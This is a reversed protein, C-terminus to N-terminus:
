RSYKKSFNVMYTILFYRKLILNDKNDTVSNNSAVQTLGINQNLVDFVSLKILGKQGEGCPVSLSSGVLNATRGSRVVAQGNLKYEYTIELTSKKAGRLILKSELSQTTFSISRYSSSLGSYSTKVVNLNYTPSFEVKDNVNVLIDQKLNGTLNNWWGKDQNIELFSKGYSGTLSTRSSLQLGNIKKFKKGFSAGYNLSRDIATNKVTQTILGATNSLRPKIIADTLVTGRFYLEYNIQASPIYNILNASFSQSKSPRLGTNGIRIYLPNVVITDPFIDGISPQNVSKSYSMSFKKGSLRLSPLIYFLSQHDVTGTKRFENKIQQFQGTLGFIVSTNKTIQYTFGPRLREEWVSRELDSSQKDLYIEYLGSERDLQYRINAEKRKSYTGGAVLELTLQKNLNYRYSADAVGFSNGNFSNYFLRRDIAEVEANYSTISDNDFGKGKGPRLQISHTLTFSSKLGLEKKLIFSHQFERQSSKFLFTNEYNSLPGKMSNDTYKSFYNDTNSWVYNFKPAYRISISKKPKWIILGNVIHKNLLQLYASESNSGLTTDEFFTKSASTRSYTSRNDSFFYMVNFKLKQGYDTNINLGGSIIRELAGTRGGLPADKSSYEESNRNFGGLSSLDSSSFATRNLNNSLGIFSIQLTDRWVSTLIGTEYRGNTGGGAYAKGFISKKVSKKLKLNIIKNVTSPDKLFDPDDERDDFVQVKSIIDAALNRSAVKADQGFFEKGDLLVKTVTRGNVTITGDNDIQIGPLKKLLEEVVANPRTKFAEASFEVTDRSVQVPSRFSTISIEKLLKPSLFIENLNLTEGKTLIFSKAFVEFGVHSIILKLQIDTPLSRLVYSGLKNTITYSVLSSDRLKVVAVTALEVPLRDISSLASGKILTTQQAKIFDSTSLFAFLLILPLRQM